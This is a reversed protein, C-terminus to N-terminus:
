KLKLKGKLGTMDKYDPNESISEKTDSEAEQDGFLDDDGAEDLQGVFHGDKFDLLESTNVHEKSLNNMPFEKMELNEQGHDFRLFSNPNRFEFPCGLPWFSAVEDDLNEDDEENEEESEEGCNTNNVLEPLVFCTVSAILNASTSFDLGSKSTVRQNNKTSTRAGAGQKDEDQEQNHNIMFGLSGEPGKLLMDERTQSDLPTDNDAQGFSSQGSMNDLELGLPKELSNPLFKGLSLEANSRFDDGNVESEEQLDTILPSSGEEIPCDDIESLLESLTSSEIEKQVSDSSFSALLEDPSKCSTSLFRAGEDNSEESVELLDGNSSLQALLENPSKHSPREVKTDQLHERMHNQYPSDVTKRLTQHESTQNWPESTNDSTAAKNGLPSQLSTGPVPSYGVSSQEHVTSAHQPVTSRKTKDQTKRGHTGTSLTVYSGARLKAQQEQTNREPQLDKSDSTATASTESLRIYTTSSVESLQDSNGGDCQDVDADSSFSMKLETDMVSPLVDVGGQHVSTRLHEGLSRMALAEAGGDNTGTDDDNSNDSGTTEESSAEAPDQIGNRFVVAKHENTVSSANMAAAIFGAEEQREIPEMWQGARELSGEHVTQISPPCSSVRTVSLQRPVDLNLPKKSPATGEAENGFVLGPFSFTKSLSRKRSSSNDFLSISSILSIGPLTTSYDGGLSTDDAENGPLCAYDM